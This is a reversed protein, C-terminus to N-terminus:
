NLKEREPHRVCYADHITCLFAIGDATPVLEVVDAMGTILSLAEIDDADSLIISPLVVGIILSGFKNPHELTFVKKSPFVDMMLELTFDVNDAKEPNPIFPKRDELEQIMEETLAKREMNNM